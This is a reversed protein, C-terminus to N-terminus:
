EEIKWAIIIETRMEVEDPNITESISSEPAMARLTGTKLLDNNYSYPRVSHPEGYQIKSIEGLKIEASEAVVKAKQKADEVALIILKKKVAEIQKPTLAFNLNFNAEFNNKIIEFITDNKNYDRTTKITIPISAEFGDFVSKQTKFDHKRIERISYNQTKILEKDIGNKAFQSKILEIKELALNTCKAYSSDKESMNINFILQEPILKVSSKGEIVIEGQAFSAMSFTMLIFLAILQKM